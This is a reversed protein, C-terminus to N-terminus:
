YGAFGSSRISFAEVTSVMSEGVGGIVFVTSGSVIASHDYRAHDLPPAFTWTNSRPDYVEVSATAQTSTIGGVVAVRGDPLSVAAHRARGMNLPAVVTWTGDYPNLLYASSSPSIPSATKWPRGYGGAILIRGDGLAAGAAMFRKAPMSSSTGLTAVSEGQRPSKFALVSPSAALLATTAAGVLAERRSVGIQKGAKEQM